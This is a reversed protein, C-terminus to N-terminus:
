VGQAVRPQDRPPISPLLQRDLAEGLAEVLRANEAPTRVAVRIFRGPALASFSDGVRLLLGRRALGEALQSAGPARTALRCLIFNVSSPFPRLGPLARLSQALAERWQVIVARSQDLHPASATCAEVGAAIALANLPWPPQLARLREVVGPAAILYGLRLGPIAFSKTLSRLVILRDSGAAERAVSFRDPSEVFDMFAEDVVLTARGQRCGMALRLVDDRTVVGGTPNNPNCLFLLGAGGLARPWPWQAVDLRFDEAARLVVHVLGAGAQEAAWEYETFTPVVVAATTLPAGRVIAGILEASGNGPLVSEVPVQHLAAIAERLAFADPDPYHHIDDLHDLIAERVRRPCGLPNLDVSFDLLKTEPQRPARLWPWVNGGHVRRRPVSASM